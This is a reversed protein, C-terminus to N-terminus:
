KKAATNLWNVIQQQTRKDVIKARKAMQAHWNKDTLATHSINANRKDDGLYIYFDALQNFLNTNSACFRPSLKAIPLAGFQAHKLDFLKPQVPQPQLLQDAKLYPWWVQTKNPYKQELRSVVSDFMDAKNSICVPKKILHFTGFLLIATQNKHIVEAEIIDTYTQERSKTLAQWQEPSITQWNFAPEALVLRVKHTRKQNLEHLKDFLDEYVQYQWAMFYLTNRWIQRIQAKPHAIGKVFYDDALQQYQSNGAEVVLNDLQNWVQPNELLQILHNVIFESGHVDGLALIKGTSLTEAAQQQLALTNNQAFSIQSILIFIGAIIFQLFSYSTFWKPCNLKIM